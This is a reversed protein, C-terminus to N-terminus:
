KSEKTLSLVRRKYRQEEMVSAALLGFVIFWKVPPVCNFLATFCSSSGSARRLSATLARVFV